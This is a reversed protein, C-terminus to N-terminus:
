NNISIKFRKDNWQLYLTDGIIIEKPNLLEISDKFIHIGDLKSTINNKIISLEEKQKYIDKEIQNKLLYVIGSLNNINHKVKNKIENLRKQEIIIENILKNKLENKKTELYNIFNMNHDILYQAALSPTPCSIDAVLDLIPNDVQHGIASIIPYKKYKFVAEVLEPESFGFLDQFSGGGRTIIIADINNEFIIKEDYIEKIKTAIIKHCDYGQVPVDIIKYSIRSKNNELNFLFDKIAAGTESTIILINKILSPLNLKNKEQFYGKKEFELKINDYKQQLNGIGQNEIINEVIFNVSGTFSYFDIKVEIVIKDGDNIEINCKELKTKWLICKINSQSDKLNFYLHGHSLKPQNVEGIVKFKGTPLCFKIKNCFDTVEM